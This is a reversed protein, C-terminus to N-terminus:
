RWRESWAQFMLVDWLSHYRRRQGSLHEALLRRIPGPDFFGEERLRRKELLIKVRVTSSYRFRDDCLQGWLWGGPRLRPPRRAQRAACDQAAVARYGGAVPPRGRNRPLSPCRWVKRALERSITSPGRNVAEAIARITLGRGLLFQIHAREDFGRHQYTTSM